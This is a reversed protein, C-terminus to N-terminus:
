NIYLRYSKAADPFLNLGIANKYYWQPNGFLVAFYGIIVMFPTLLEYIFDNFLNVFWISFDRDKGDEMTGEDFSYGRPGPYPLTSSNFQSTTQDTM